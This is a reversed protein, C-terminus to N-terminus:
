WASGPGRVPRRHDLRQALVPDRVFSLLIDVGDFAHAMQRGFDHIEGVAQLYRTPHLTDAYALAGRSVGEVLDQPDRGKLASRVSLATGIGVMVADHRARPQATPAQNIRATM